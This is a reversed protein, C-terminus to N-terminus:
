TSRKSKYLTIYHDEMKRMIAVDAKKKDKYGCLHLAGHFLVRLAEDEFSVKLTKANDKIRDVSVYVEGIIEERNESLDFTIIDTYFDHQLFSRNIQLLNDDSCFVYGLRNLKRNEGKFISAIFSQIKRKHNVALTRDDYNFSVKAVPSIKSKWFEYCFVM